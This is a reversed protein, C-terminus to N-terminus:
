PTAGYPNSLEEDGDNAPSTKAPSTKAPPKPAHHQPKPPTKTAPEVVPMPAAAVAPMQTRPTPPAVTPPPAVVGREVAPTPASAVHATKAPRARLVSAAVVGGVV